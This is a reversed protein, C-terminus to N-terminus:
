TGVFGGKALPHEGLPAREFERVRLEGFRVRKKPSSKMTLYHDFYLAFATFALLLSLLPVFRQQL